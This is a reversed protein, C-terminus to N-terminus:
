GENSNTQGSCAGTDTYRAICYMIWMDDLRDLLVGKGHDDLSDYLRELDATLQPRYKATLTSQDEQVMEAIELPALYSEMTEVAQRIARCMDSPLPQQEYSASEGQMSEFTEDDAEVYESVLNHMYELHTLYTSDPFLEATIQRLAQVDAEGLANVEQKQETTLTNYM